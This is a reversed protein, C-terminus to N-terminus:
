QPSRKLIYVGYATTIIFLVLSIIINQTDTMDQAFTSTVNIFSHSIICPILTKTRLFLAVFMFGFGIASFIQCLTPVFSAGNMLNIIHGLGFTLSSVIVAVKINEIAKFLFGRFIIEELIGVFLMSGMLFVSDPAKFGFWLNVTSAIIMPLYFLVKRLNSEAKCIGYENLLKHKGLWFLLAACMLFHVAFTLIKKSDLNDAVSSLVVYSIIWLLAFWLKSKEYLKYM